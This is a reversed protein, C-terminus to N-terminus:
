LDVSFMDIKRLELWLRKPGAPIKQLLISLYIYYFHVPVYLIILIHISFDSLYTLFNYFSRWIKASGTKRQGTRYTTMDPDPPLPAAAYKADTCPFSLIMIFLIM